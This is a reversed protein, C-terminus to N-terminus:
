TSKEYIAALRKKMRQLRKRVTASKLHLQKGITAANEEEFISLQIIRQDQPTLQKIADLLAHYKEHKTHTHQYSSQLLKKSSCDAIQEFINDEYLIFEEQTQHHEYILSTLISQLSYSSQYDTLRSREMFILFTEQVFDKSLEPNSLHNNAFSLLSDYHLKYLVQMRQQKM